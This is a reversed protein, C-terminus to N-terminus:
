QLLIARWVCWVRFYRVKTSHQPRPAAHHTSKFGRAVDRSCTMVRAVCRPWPLTFSMSAADLLMMTVRIRM